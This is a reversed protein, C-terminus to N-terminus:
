PSRYARSGMGAHTSWRVALNCITCNSWLRDICIAKKSVKEAQRRLAPPAKTHRAKEGATAKKQRCQRTIAIKSGTIGEEVCRVPSAQTQVRGSLQQYRRSDRHCGTRRTGICQGVIVKGKATKHSCPHARKLLSSAISIM